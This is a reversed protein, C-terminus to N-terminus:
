AAVSRKVYRPIRAIGKRPGRRRSVCFKVADMIEANSCTVKLQKCIQGDFDTFEIGRKTWRVRGDKGSAHLAKSSAMVTVRTVTTIEIAYRMLLATGKNPHYIAV